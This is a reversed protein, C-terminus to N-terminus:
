LFLDDGSTLFITDKKSPVTITNKHYFLSHKIRKEFVNKYQIKTKRTANAGSHVGM